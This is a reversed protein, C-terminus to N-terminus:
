KNFIPKATRLDEPWVIERKGKQWQIIAPLGKLHAGNNDVVYRGIIIPTDLESLVKSIAQRNVSGARIIAKELIQCAAFASAAHYSPVINYASRYARLFEASGPLPVDERPEWVSSFFTTHADDGVSERYKELNPGPHAYFAKPTWGIKKLARRMATSEDLWGTLIVAQAGSDRAAKAAEEFDANQKPVSRYDVVDLGYEPAWRKAGEGISLMSLDDLRIIAIKKIETHSLLALFGIAYRSNPPYVAFLNKYGKMWLEDSSAGGTLMPYNNKETVLAAAATLRSSFPGFVLDLKEKETFQEYIKAVMQPDSQDDRIIVSIPRDLIGGRKNVQGEWLQYALQQLRGFEAYSGSLSLSVGIRIPPKTADADALSIETQLVALLCLIKLHRRLQM